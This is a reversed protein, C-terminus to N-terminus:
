RELVLFLCLCRGIRGMLRKLGVSGGFNLGAVLCPTSLQREAAGESTRAGRAAGDRHSAARFRAPAATILSDM